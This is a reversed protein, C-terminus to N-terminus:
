NKGLKQRVISIFAGATEIAHAAEYRSIVGRKDYILHNRRKRMSDFLEVKEKFKAGLKIEAYDVITKHHAQGVTSFGDQFLLARASQLMANYAIAFAWDDDKGLLTKATTADHEAADLCDKAQAADPTIPKIRNEKLLDSLNM